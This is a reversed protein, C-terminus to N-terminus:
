PQEGRGVLFALYIIRISKKAYTNKADNFKPKSALNYENCYWTEFIERVPSNKRVAKKNLTEDEKTEHLFNPAGCHHKAANWAWWSLRRAGPHSGYRVGAEESYLASFLQYEDAKTNM